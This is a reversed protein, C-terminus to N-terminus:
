TAIKLGKATDNARLTPESAHELAIGIPMSEMRHQLTRMVQQIHDVEDLCSIRQGHPLPLPRISAAGHRNEHDTGHRRCIHHRQRLVVYLHDATVLAPRRDHVGKSMLGLEGNADM